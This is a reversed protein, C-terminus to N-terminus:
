TFRMEKLIDKQPIIHSTASGWKEHDLLSILGASIIYDDHVLEGSGTDRTGDPVSWRMIKGPGELISYQCYELQRCM